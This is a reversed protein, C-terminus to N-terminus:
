LGREWVGLQCKKDGNGFRLVVRKSAPTVKRLREQQLSDAVGSLALEKSTASKLKYLQHLPM